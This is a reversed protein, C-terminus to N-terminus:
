GGVRYHKECMHSTNDSFATVEFAEPKWRNLLESATNPTKGIIEEQCDGKVVIDGINFTFYGAREEKSLKTYERYPLYQPSQAIRATYVSAMSATKDGNTRGMVCKFFCKNVTSRHWTNEKEGSDKAKVCNYITITQNYNPNM